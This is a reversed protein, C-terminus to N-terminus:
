PYLPGCLSRLLQLDRRMKPPVPWGRRDLAGAYAELAALSARRAPVMSLASAGVLQQTEHQATRTRRVEALLGPLDDPDPRSTDTGDPEGV